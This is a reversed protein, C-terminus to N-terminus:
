KGGFSLGSIGGNIIGAQFGSNQNGFMVTTSRSQNEAAAKAVAEEQSKSLLEDLLKRSANLAKREEELQRLAEARSENSEAQEQDSTDINRENIEELRNGSELLQDDTAVIARGIETQRTHITQRIEETIHTHRISSYLTAISVVQNITRKCNQLQESMTKIREQKFFGVNARDHWTLKGDKSHRIWRQLDSRFAECAIACSSITTKSEEAVDASLSEWERDEVTRLLSLAMDVSRIDAELRQITEPAEKIKQLDNLLLRAGHLAPVTVGAISAAISLPEAM